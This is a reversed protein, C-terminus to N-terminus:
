CEPIKSSFFKSSGIPPQTEMDETPADADPDFHMQVISEKMDHVQRFHDVFSKIDDSKLWKVLDVLVLFSASEPGGLEDLLDYIPTAYEGTAM